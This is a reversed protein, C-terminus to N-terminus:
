TTAMGDDVERKALQRDKLVLGRHISQALYRRLKELVWEKTTNYKPIQPVESGDKPDVWDPDDKTENNPFLSLFGESGAVVKDGPIKITLIIDAM